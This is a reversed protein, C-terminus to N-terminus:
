GGDGRRRLVFDVIRRVSDLNKPTAEADTVTVGFAQELFLILELVGTSDIVNAAMLSTDDDHPFEADSLLFTRALFARVAERCSARTTGAPPTRDDTPAASM